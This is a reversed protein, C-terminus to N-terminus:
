SFQSRIDKGFEVAEKVGEGIVSPKFGGSFGEKLKKGIAEGREIGKSVRDGVDVARQALGIGKSVLGGVGPIFSAGQKIVDIVPSNLIKQGVHVGTKLAGKVGRWAKGAFNKLSNWFGM